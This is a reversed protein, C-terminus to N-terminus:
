KGKKGSETHNSKLFSNYRKSDKSKGDRGEGKDDTNYRYSYIRISSISAKSSTKEIKQNGENQQYQYEFILM